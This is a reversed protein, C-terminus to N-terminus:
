SGLVKGQVIKSAGGLVIQDGSSITGNVYAYNDDFYIIEVLDKTVVNNRITYISWLGQDSQSLSKLPVWLGKANEKIKLQLKAVLGPSLFENFQFIALRSNSGSKSVPAVRMLTGKHSAEGVTFEYQSNIMLREIFKIPLTVHAEVYESDIVDLIPAGGSIVTGPDLYRSQVIGNFPAVLKTQDLKVQYFEHQSQASLFESNAEDLQQDSVHGDVRLGEVRQLIIKALDFRAKAQKLQANIERSDLQALVQGKTVEDGIDVNIISVKGTIEFSIKSQQSPHLIGPFAKNVFYYDQIQAELIEISQANINQNSFAIFLIIFFNNLYNLSTIKRQM